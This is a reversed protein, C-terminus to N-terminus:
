ECFEYSVASFTVSASWFVEILLWYVISRSLICLFAVIINTRQLAFIVKWLQEISYLCQYNSCFMVSVRYLHFLYLRRTVTIMIALHMHCVLCKLKTGHIPRTTLLLAHITFNCRGCCFYCVTSVSALMCCCLQTVPKEINHYSVTCCSCRWMLKYINSDCVVASPFRNKELVLYYHYWLL